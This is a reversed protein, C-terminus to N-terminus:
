ESTPAEDHVRMWYEALEYWSAAPREFSGKANADTASAAQQLCARANGLCKWVNELSEAKKDM